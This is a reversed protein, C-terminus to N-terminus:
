PICSPVLTAQHAIPTGRICAVRVNEPNGAHEPTVFPEQSRSGIRGDSLQGRGGVGGKQSDSGGTSRDRTSQDREEPLATSTYRVGRPLSAVDATISGATRTDRGDPRRYNARYSEPTIALATSSGARDVLTNRRQVGSKAAASTAAGVTPHKM